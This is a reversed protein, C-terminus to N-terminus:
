LVRHITLPITLPSLLHQQIFCSLPQVKVCISRCEVLGMTKALQSRTPHLLLQQSLLLLPPLLLIVLLMQQLLSWLLLLLLLLRLLLLLVQAASRKLSSLM